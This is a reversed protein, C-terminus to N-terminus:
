EWADLVLGDQCGNHWDLSGLLYGEGGGNRRAVFGPRARPGLARGEGGGKRRAVPGPRARSGLVRGEGGGNRRALLGLRAGDM